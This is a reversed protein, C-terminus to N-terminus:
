VPLSKVNRKVIRTCQKDIWHCLSPQIHIGAEQLNCSCSASLAFPLPKAAELARAGRTDPATERGVSPQLVLFRLERLAIWFISSNERFQQSPSPLWYSSKEKYAWYSSSVAMPVAHWQCTTFPSPQISRSSCGCPQWWVGSKTAYFSQM